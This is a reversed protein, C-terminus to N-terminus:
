NKSQKKRHVYRRKPRDKNLHYEDIWSQIEYENYNVFEVSRSHDGICSSKENSSSSCSASAGLSSMYDERVRRKQIDNIYNQNQFWFAQSTPNQNVLNSCSCEIMPLSQDSGQLDKERNKKLQERMSNNESELSQLKQLVSSLIEQQSKTQAELLANRHEIQRKEELIHSFNSFQTEVKESEPTSTSVQTKSTSQVLVIKTVNNNVQKSSKEPSIVIRQYMLIDYLQKTKQNKQIGGRDGINETEQAV